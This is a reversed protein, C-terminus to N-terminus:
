SQSREAPTVSERRGRHRRRLRHPAARFGIYRIVRGGRAAIAVSKRLEGSKSIAHPLLGDAM